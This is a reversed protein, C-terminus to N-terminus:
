LQRGRWAFLSQRITEFPFGEFGYGKYTGLGSYPTPNMGVTGMSGVSFWLNAHMASPCGGRSPVRCAKYVAPTHLWLHFAYYLPEKCVWVQGTVRSSVPFGPNHPIVVETICCFPSGLSEKTRTCPFERRGQPPGNKTSFAGLSFFPTSNRPKHAIHTTFFFLSGRGLSPRGSFFEM